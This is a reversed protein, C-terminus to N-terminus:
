MEIRLVDQGFGRFSRMRFERDIQVAYHSRMLLDSLFLFLWHHWVSDLTFTVSREFHCVVAHTWPIVVISKAVLSFLERSIRLDGPIWCELEQSAFFKVEIFAIRQETPHHLIVKENVPV